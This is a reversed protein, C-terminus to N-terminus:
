ISEDKLSKITNQLAKKFNTQPIRGFASEFKDTKASMLMIQNKDYPLVGYNITIKSSMLTKIYELIDRNSHEENAQSLNYIGSKGYIGIVNCIAEAFDKAYLYSYVQEGQTTDFSIKGSICNKVVSPILGGTMKEGFVTFVRIWQWEIHKQECYEKLMQLTEVKAWAYKIIPNLKQDESIPGKYYGYEAQSGLAIIQKYPYLTFIKNSMLVNQKQIEENDRDFGRVGGWAAHILVDPSFIKIKNEWGIDNITVWQIKREEYEDFLSKSKARRLCLVHHGRCMCHCAIHYGLSGTAGTIFVKM